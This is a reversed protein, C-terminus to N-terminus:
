STTGTTIFHGADDARSIFVRSPNSANGSVVHRGKWYLGFKASVGNAPATWTLGSLQSMASGGTHLYLNDRAQVFNINLDPITCGSGAAIATWATGNDYSLTGAAASLFYKSGSDMYYSALGRIRSGVAQRHATTGGRKTPLGDETLNMNLLEPSEQPDVRTDSVLTNLGKKWSDIVWEAPNSGGVSKRM